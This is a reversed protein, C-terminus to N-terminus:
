FLASFAFKFLQLLTMVFNNKGCPLIKTFTNINIIQFAKKNSIRKRKLAFKDLIDSPNLTGAFGGDNKIIPVCFNVIKIFHKFIKLDM